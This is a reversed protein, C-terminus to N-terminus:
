RPALRAASASRARPRVGRVAPRAHKATRRTVQGPAANPKPARRVRNRRTLVIETAHQLDDEYQAAMQESFREDEIAVDLEYNSMWSALNLNTSGVRSWGGDAVATKAHLMTGDWEFVRVGAELLPRYGARSLPSCLRIDSAARCCCACTSATADCRRAAGARLAVDRRFVCRDAMAPRRAISAIVLDMRFRAPSPEARERRRQLACRRGGRAISEQPLPIPEDLPAGSEAFYREFENLSRGRGAYRSARTAGRSWGRARTASDVSGVCLGSVFGVEGDVVIMKRHDRSLWGLPSSLRPPNFFRVDVGADRADRWLSVGRWSGLWDVIVHVQVGARSRETLIGAFERGVDDDEVIYSEFLIYRQARALADKWAPYNERADCLLRM